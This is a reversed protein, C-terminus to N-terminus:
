SPLLARSIFVMYRHMAEDLPYDGNKMCWNYTLGRAAVFLIDTIEHADLSTTLEKKTRGESVIKHLISWMLRTDDAFHIIHTTYLAKTVDLGNTIYFKAFNDFYCVIKEIAGNGSINNEVHKRFYEDGRRFVEELIDNKNKYYHYFTGVSVGARKGIKEITLNEFGEEALLSLAAKYIEKKTNIAQLKRKTLKGTTM